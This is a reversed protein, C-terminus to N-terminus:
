GKRKSLRGTLIKHGSELYEFSIGWCFSAIIYAHKHTCIKACFGKKQLRKVFSFFHFSPFLRLSFPFSSGKNTLPYVWLGLMLGLPFCWNFSTSAFKPCNEEYNLSKLLFIWLLPHGLNGERAPFLAFVGRDLLFHTGLSFLSRLELFIGWPFIKLFLPVIHRGEYLFIVPFTAFSPGPYSGLM